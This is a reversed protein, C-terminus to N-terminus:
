GADRRERNWREADPARLYIPELPGQGYRDEQNGLECIASGLLHNAPDDVGALELGLAELESRFRIAGPGAVLASGGLQSVAEALAEPPGVSAPHLESGGPDHAAFFLEGRRADLAPVAIAPGDGEGGRAIHISRAMVDLTPIGAVETNRALAIGIATAIAVRLGTYTGPGGGTLVRGVREWGGVSDVAQEVATLLESSHAPRDGEVPGSRFEFTSEGGVMAAVVTEETATDFGIIATM